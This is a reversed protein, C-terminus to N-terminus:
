EGTKSEISKIDWWLLFLSIPGLLIGIFSIVGHKKKNNKVHKVLGCAFVKNDNYYMYMLVVATIGCMFWLIHLPEM